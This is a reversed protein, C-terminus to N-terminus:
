ANRACATPQGQPAPHLVVPSWSPRAEVRHVGVAELAPNALHGQALASDDDRSQVRLKECRVRQGRALASSIISCMDSGFHIEINDTCSLDDRCTSDDAFCHPGSTTRSWLQLLVEKSSPM